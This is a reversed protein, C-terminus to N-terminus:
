VYYKAMESFLQRWNTGRWNDLKDLYAIFEETNANIEINNLLKSIKHNTSFKKLVADRLSTNTKDLGVIGNAYHINLDTKDGLRNYAFEKNFWEEFRDFYLINMPTLTHEVMFMVNNPVVDFINTKIKSFRDWTFPWRLYDFQKEVGDLSAAYKILHFKEWLSFVKKTPTTSFNSTYQVTVNEPRPISELIKIHTDTLFPEGGGFKIYKLESLDQTKFLELFKETTTNEKDNKHLNIITQSELVNNKINQEYWFSSAGSDCMPCALNCKKNVAVTIFVLKDTNTTIIENAAQRYSTTNFSNEHEICIKCTKKVDSLQWNQRFQIYQSSIDKTLNISNVESFYCCPSVTFNITNNNYVIGNKFFKCFIENLM